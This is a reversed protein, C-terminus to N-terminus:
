ARALAFGLQPKADPGRLYLPRPKEGPEARAGLMAVVGIDAPGLDGVDLGLAAGATGILRASVGQARRRAEDVPLLFADGDPNGDAHFAQGYVEDRKADLLVMVPTKDSRQAMAALTAFTTIGVAPKGCALALGRVAAVGVRIGTFSGPGVSVAFRDIASLPLAARDLAKTLFGMLQEAHGRGIEEGARALERGASADYVVAYCGSAATDLALVIM